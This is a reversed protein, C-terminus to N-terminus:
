ALAKNRRSLGIWLVIMAFTSTVAPMLATTESDTFVEVGVALAFGGLLLAFMTAAAFRESRAALLLTHALGCLAFPPICSALVRIPRVSSAFSEGFVPVALPAALFLLLLAIVSYIVFWMGLGTPRHEKSVASALVAEFGASVLIYVAAAARYGVYYAGADLPSLAYTILYTLYLLNGLYYIGPLHLVGSLIAARDLAPRPRLLVEPRTRRLLLFAGAAYITRAIAYCWGVAMLGRGTELCVILSTVLVVNLTGVLMCSLHSQHLGKFVSNASDGVSMGVTSLGILLVLLTVDVGGWFWGGGIMLILVLPMVSLKYSLAGDVAASILEGGAVSKILRNNMGLDLVPVFFATLSIAFGYDALSTAGLYRAVLVMSLLGGLTHVAKEITLYVVNRQLNV